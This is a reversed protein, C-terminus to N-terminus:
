QKKKHARFDYFCLGSDNIIALNKAAGLQFIDSDIM